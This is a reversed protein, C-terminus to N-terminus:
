LLNSNKFKTKEIQYTIKRKIERIKRGSSTVYYRKTWNGRKDFKYYFRIVGNESRGGTVVSEPNQFDIIENVPYGSSNYIVEVSKTLKACSDFSLISKIKGKQYKYEYCTTWNSIKSQHSAKCSQLNKYEYKFNSWVIVPTLTDKQSFFELREILGDRSYYTMEISFDKDKIYIEKKKRWNEGKTYECKLDYRLEDKFYNRQRLLHGDRYSYLSKWGSRFLGNFNIQKIELVEDTVPRIEHIPQGHCISTLLCLSIWIVIRM